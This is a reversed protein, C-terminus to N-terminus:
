YVEHLPLFSVQLTMSEDTELAPSTDLSRAQSTSRPRDVINLGLPIIYFMFNFLIVFLAFSIRVGQRLEVGLPSPSGLGQPRSFRLM